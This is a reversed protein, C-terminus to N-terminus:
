VIYYYQSDPGQEIPQQQPTTRELRQQRNQNIRSGQTSTPNQRRASRRLRRNDPGRPQQEEEVDPVPENSQM